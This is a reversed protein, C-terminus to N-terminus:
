FSASPTPSNTITAQETGSPSWAWRATRLFVICGTTMWTGCPSLAHIGQHVLNQHLLAKLEASSLGFGFLDYGDVLWHRDFGPVALGKDGTQGDCWRRTRVEGSWASFWTLFIPRWRKTSPRSSM